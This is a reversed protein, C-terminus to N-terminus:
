ILGSLGNGLKLFNNLQSLIGTIDNSGGTLAGIGGAVTNAMTAPAGAANINPQNANPIGLGGESTLSARYKNLLDSSTDNVYKLGETLVGPNTFPNGGTSAKRTFANVAADIGSQYGPISSVNFGPALSANFAQRAPDGIALMKDAASNNASRSADAGFLGALTTGLAGLASNNNNSGGGLLKQLASSLGSTPNSTAYQKLQDILSQGPVTSGGASPALNAPNALDGVQVGGPGDFTGPQFDNFYDSLWSPVSNAAAGLGVGGGGAATSGATGLSSIFSDLASGSLGAAQGMQTLGALDAASLAGAGVGAGVGAGASGALAGPLFADGLLGTGAAGVSGLGEAGLAGPLFADGATTLGGAAGLGAGATMVALAALALATTPNDGLIGQNQLKAIGLDTPKWGTPDANQINGRSTQWFKLPNGKSDTTDVISGPGYMKTYVSNVDGSQGGLYGPVTNGYYKPDNATIDYFGNNKALETAATNVSSAGEANPNYNANLDNYQKFFASNDPAAPTTSTNGMYNVAPTSQSSLLQTLWSPIGQSEATSATGAMSEPTGPTNSMSMSEPTYGTIKYLDSLNM